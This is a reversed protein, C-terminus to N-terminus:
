SEGDLAASVAGVIEDAVLQHARRGLHLPDPGNFLRGWLPAAVTDELHFLRLGYKAALGDVISDFRAKDEASAYLSVRPNLPASFLVLRVGAERSVAAITDLAAQSRTLRPGSISRANSPKIRLFYIRARYLMQEFSEKVTHRQRFLWAGQLETRVTEEVVVGFAQTTPEKPRSAARAKDEDYKTLANQFDEAYPEGSRARQEVRARFAPESLLEFMSSRIGGNWFAQYNLQLVIASPRLAARSLLYDLYWLAESYSMGPAALRYCLVGRRALTQAVLDPYTHEAGSPPPEGPALSIAFMQSNGILVVKPASPSKQWHDAVRDFSALPHDGHSADHILPNDDGNSLQTWRPAAGFGRDLLSSIKDFPDVWLLAATLLLTSSLVGVATATTSM